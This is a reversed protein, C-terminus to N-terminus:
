APDPAGAAPRSIKRGVWIGGAEAMVDLGPLEIVPGEVVLRNGPLVAGCALTVGDVDRGAAGGVVVARMSSRRLPLRASRLVSADGPAAQAPPPNVLVLRIGAFLPEAEIAIRGAAGVLALYGGPGDLGALAHVGLASLATPAEDPMGEGFDVTGDVVTVERGCTPCGLVGTVVRRDAMREPLLVLYSEAHEGPCRLHDTLEIFV